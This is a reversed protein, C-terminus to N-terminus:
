NNLAGQEIWRKILEIKNKPLSGSPPMITPQGLLRQYLISAELDKSVIYNGMLIADYSKDETLNPAAVILPHCSTCNTNFIPQIEASFSVITDELIIEEVVEDYYCGSIILTSSLVVLTRLVYNKKTM